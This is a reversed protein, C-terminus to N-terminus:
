AASASSRPAARPPCACTSRRARAPSPPRARRPSRPPRARPRPAQRHGEAHDLLDVAGGEPLARHGRVDRRQRGQLAEAASLEGTTPLPPPPPAIAIGGPPPAPPPSPVPTPPVNAVRVDYSKAATNGAGDAVLLELKHLATPSWPPTSRSSWATARRATRPSRSTPRPTPPPSSRAAGRAPRRRDGRRDRRADRDRTRRRARPRRRRRGGRVDGQGRAPRRRRLLHARCRRARDAGRLAPGRARGARRLAPGAHRLAARGRGLRRDRRRVPQRGAVRRGADRAAHQLDAGLLRPRHRQPGALRARARRRPPPAFRVAAWQGHAPDPRAFAIRLAGGVAACGGGVPGHGRDRGHGLREAALPLPDGGPGHCGWLTVTQARAPAAAAVRPSSPSCFRGVCGVSPVRARRARFGRRVSTPAWGPLM